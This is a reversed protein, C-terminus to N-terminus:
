TRALAKSVTLLTNPPTQIYLTYAASQWRGLTKILSDQLGCLSATTAAGSRFSHGAYKEPAYGAAKLAGRLHSVLRARTLLRGDEFTFMPGPAPGRRVMYDLMAAVPCLDSGTTGLYISVGKRYPDTKSAKIRVLMFQPHATNDVKADGYNLHVHPDYESESPVVAEGSRLFGFFCLSSAAWLMASNRRNPHREWVERIRRLIPPTIPLRVRGSQGRGKKRLGKVVYELRPMESIQPDGLGLTIQNYRLASLYSKVTGPALGDRFLQGVFYCLSGETVPYPSLGYTKCFGEYRSGGTRYVKRTSM